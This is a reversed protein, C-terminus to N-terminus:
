EQEIWIAVGPAPGAPERSLTGGSVETVEAKRWKLLFIREDPAFTLQENKNLNSKWFAGGRSNSLYEEFSEDLQLDGWRGGDFSTQMTWKGDAQKFRAEVVREGNFGAFSSIFGGPGLNMSTFDRRQVADIGPPIVGTYCCVKYDVGPPFYVRWKWGDDRTPVQVGHIRTPDDVTLLGLETRYRRVESRLPVIERWFQVIVIAMGAITVLLM